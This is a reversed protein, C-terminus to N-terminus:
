KEDFFYFLLLLSFYINTKILVITACPRLHFPSLFPQDVSEILDLQFQNVIWENMVIQENVM